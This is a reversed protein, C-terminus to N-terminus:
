SKTILPWSARRAHSTSGGYNRIGIYSDLPGTKPREDAVAIARRDHLEDLGVLLLARDRDEDAIATKSRPM